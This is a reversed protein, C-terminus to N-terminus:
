NLTKKKKNKHLHYKTATIQTSHNQLQQPHTQFIVIYLQYYISFLWIILLYTLLRMSFFEVRNLRSLLNIILLIEITWLTGWFPRILKLLPKQKHNRLKVFFYILGILNIALIIWIISQLPFVPPPTLSFFYEIFAILTQIM